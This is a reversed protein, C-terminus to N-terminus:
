RIICFYFVAILVFYFLNDFLKLPLISVQLVPVERMDQQSVLMVCCHVLDGTRLVDLLDFKM